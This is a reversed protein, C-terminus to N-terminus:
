TGGLPTMQTVYPNIAVPILMPGPLDFQWASSSLTFLLVLPFTRIM